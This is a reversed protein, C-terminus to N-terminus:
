TCSCVTCLLLIDLFCFCEQFSSGQAMERSFHIVLQGVLHTFFVSLVISIALMCILSFGLFVSVQRACVIEFFCTNVFVMATLCKRLLRHCCVFDALVSFQNNPECKLWIKTFIIHHLILKISQAYVEQM